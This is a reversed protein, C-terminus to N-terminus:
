FIKNPSVNLHANRPSIQPDRAALLANWERYALWCPLNSTKLIRLIKQIINGQLTGRGATAPDVM